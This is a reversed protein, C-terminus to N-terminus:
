KPSSIFYQFALLNKRPLKHTEKRLSSFAKFQSGSVLKTSHFSSHEAKTKNDKIHPGIEPKFHINIFLYILLPEMDQNQSPTM